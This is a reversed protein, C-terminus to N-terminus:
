KEAGQKAVQVLSSSYLETWLRIIICKGWKQNIIDVNVKSTTM